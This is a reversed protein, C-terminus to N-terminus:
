LTSYTEYFEQGTYSKGDYNITADERIHHCTGNVNLEYVQMGMYVKLKNPDSTQLASIRDELSAFDAGAFLWGEPPVFCSKIYKAYINGTSPINQLNPGSSSLRGSVTGGLNFNGHLYFVGDSRQVSSQIFAKVFTNLIKSVESLSILTDLLAVHTPNGAARVKLKKLVKGGTAPQKTDTFDKVEYGLFGYLLRALQKPSAPNFTMNDFHSLPHVKTKLLLNAKVMEEKRMQLTFDKVIQSQYVTTIFKGEIKQMHQSVEHVREMDLPMGVLEMQLIVGVSPKMIEDYVRQQNDAIMIPWYKDHVYWTSLCDVLNYKLLHDRHIKRIDKIDSQAYNGAFEHALNKLKLDNGSTSNTALYAIIKTDEFVRTITKIGKIMGAMDEPNKMFLSYVIIKMDFNANHYLLKGKYTTFFEYLMQRIHLDPQKAGYVRDEPPGRMVTDMYDCGFAIGNHKDWAFSITGLGASAFELGFTEVDCTLRDYQHLSNLTARIHQYNFPYSATHIIDKGPDVHTGNYNNALATVARLIKPYADPNYIGSYYNPSFVVQMDEYGKIACPLIYGLHKEASRVNALVKFYASDCVLMTKVGQQQLAKMLKELYARIFKVPCKNNENYTLSFGIMEDKPVGLKVLDNVYHKEMPIQNLHAAKILLAIEYQSSEEFITHFM